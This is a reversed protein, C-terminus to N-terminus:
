SKPIQMIYKHNNEAKLGKEAKFRKSFISTLVVAIYFFVTYLIELSAGSKIKLKM